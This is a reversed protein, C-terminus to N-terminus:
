FCFISSPFEFELVSRLPPHQPLKLSLPECAGPCSSVQDRLSPM